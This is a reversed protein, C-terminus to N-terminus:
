IVCLLGEDSEMMRHISDIFLIVTNSINETSVSDQLHALDEHMKMINEQPVYDVMTQVSPISSTTLTPMAFSNDFTHDMGLSSTGVSPTLPSSLGFDVVLTKDRSEMLRM